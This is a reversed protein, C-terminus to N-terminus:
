IALSGQEMLPAALGGSQLAARSAARSATRAAAADRAEKLAWWTRLHFHVLAIDTHTTNRTAHTKQQARMLMRLQVSRMCAYMSRTPWIFAQLVARLISKWCEGTPTFTEGTEAVLCAAGADAGARLLERCVDLHGGQAAQLRNPTSYPM